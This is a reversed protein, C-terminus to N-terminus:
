TGCGWDGLLVGLDGHGVHGDGDFDAEPNWNPDGEHSCWAGLLAGLDAHDTDNDGDVDGVCEPQAGLYEWTEGDINVLVM